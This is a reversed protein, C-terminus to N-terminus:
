LKGCLKDVLVTLTIIQMRMEMIKDVPSDEFKKELCSSLWEIHAELQQQHDEFLIKRMEREQEPIEEGFEGFMYFAFAYTYSLIQRSRFLRYLGNTLWSVDRPLAKNDELRKIKENMTEKMKSELMFSDTHAKYRNHYHMYRYLYKKAKEAKNKEDEGFRGCSHGAITNWTHTVGTAEGCHWSCFQYCVIFLYISM